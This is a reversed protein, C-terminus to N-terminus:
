TASGEAALWSQFMLISWLRRGYNREGALHQRWVDRIFAPNFFGEVILRRESILEEAWERLSGRLWDDIPIDFGRKPRDTIAAPVYRGLVNRLIRKGRGHSIKLGLPIRSAFEVVRADLFPARTELSASMSARDVKVMIDDPLYTIADLAMMRAEPSELKPWLAREDLLSKPDGSGKVVDSANEWESVVLVYFDDINRAHQLKSVINAMKYALDPSQGHRRLVMKLLEQAAVMLPGPLNEIIRGLNRRIPSPIWAVNSWQGPALLYRNYGGFLEDGGDGSMAVSVHKRTLRSLLVTPIQSSDAFPEDFISHLDPIVKLADLATVRLETHDAGLHRAVAAAHKAEDFRGDEFGISFVRVPRGSQQQMLAVITSSDVGGSLFAGLPVDSMMQSRVVDKLVSDLELTIEEESLTSLSRAGSEVVEKYSWYPKPRSLTGLPAQIELWTGAPLKNIGEYISHTSPIYNHRLLLAISGRSIKSDFGPHAKIAKLESGFVFTDKIYGYYLPKEGLRDRALVLHRKFGDWLAFAFMGLCQKLATEIGWAEICALLVETDSHGRWSPAEGSNNLETQLERFNYIEGNFVLTYRGSSSHMPQAGAESLDIISLRRHGLAIGAERDVWYGAADPGRHAVADTMNRLATEM